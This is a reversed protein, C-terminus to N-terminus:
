FVPLMIKHFEFNWTETSYWLIFGAMAFSRRHRVLWRASFLYCLWQEYWLNSVTFHPMLLSDKGELGGLTLVPWCYDTLKYHEDDVTSYIHGENSLFEIANRIQSSHQEHSPKVNDVDHTSTVEISNRNHINENIQFLHYRSTPRFLMLIQFNYSILSLSM